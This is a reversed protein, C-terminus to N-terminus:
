HVRALRGLNFSTCVGNYFSSVQFFEILPILGRKAQYHSIRNHIKLVLGLIHHCKIMNIGPVIIYIMVHQQCDLTIVCLKIMKRKLGGVEIINLSSM